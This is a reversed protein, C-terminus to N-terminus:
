SKRSYSMKGGTTAGSKGVQAAFRKGSKRNKQVLNKEAQEKQVNMALIRWNNDHKIKYYMVRDFIFFISMLLALRKIM